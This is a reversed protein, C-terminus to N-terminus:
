RVVAPISSTRRITGDPLTIEGQFVLLSGLEASSPVFYDMGRSSGTPPVIGLDFVRNRTTLRDEQLGPGPIVIPARGLVLRVATGPPASVALTLEAGVTPTGSMRLTPDDPVAHEVNTTSSIGDVIAGSYRVGGSGVSVGFGPFGDYDYASGGSGGAGGRLLNASTGTILATSGGELQLGDGGDGPVDGEDVEACQNSGGRGGQLSCRAVHIETNLALLATEGDGIPGLCDSRGDRGTITSDAIEFRSTEVFLESHGTHRRVRVDRSDAVHNLGSCGDIVVAADCDTVELGSPFVLEFLSASLDARLYRGTGVLGMTGAVNRVVTAGTVVVSGGLISLPKELVFGSYTGPRVVLVDGPDAAAIAPPIDLFDSGAGGSSDVVYVHARALPSLLAAFLVAPALSRTFTSM